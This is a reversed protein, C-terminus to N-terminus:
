MLMNSTNSFAHFAVSLCVNVITVTRGLFGLRLKHHRVPHRVKGNVRHTEDWHHMPGTQAAYEHRVAARLEWDV